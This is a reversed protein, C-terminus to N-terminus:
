SGSRDLQSRLEDVLLELGVGQWSVAARFLELVARTERDVELSRVLEEARDALRSLEPARGRALLVRALDLLARAADRGRGQAEWGDLVGRLAEEAEALRGRHEHICAEMWTLRLREPADPALAMDEVQRHLCPICAEAEEVRGLRLLSTLREQEIGLRLPSAGTKAMRGAAREQVELAEEWSGAEALLRAKCRLVRAVSQARPRHIAETAALARDIQLLADRLRGQEYRLCALYALVRCRFPLFDAPEDHRDLQLLAQAFAREASDPDGLVQYARALAARAFARLEALYEVPAPEDARLGDVAAVALEARELALEAEGEGSRELSEEALWVALGWHILGPHRQLRERREEASLGRTEAELAAWRQPAEAEALAVEIEPLSAEPALRGEALMELLGPARGRCTGCRALAHFLLRRETPEQLDGLLAHIEEPTLHDNEPRIM